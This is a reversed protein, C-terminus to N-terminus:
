DDSLVFSEIHYGAYIRGSSMELFVGHGEMGAVQGLLVFRDSETFPYRSRYAEPLRDFDFRVLPYTPLDAPPWSPPTPTEDSM